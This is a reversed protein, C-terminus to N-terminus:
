LTLRRRNVYYGAVVDNVAIEDRNSLTSGSILPPDQSKFSGVLSGKEIVTLEQTTVNFLVLTSGMRFQKDTPEDKEPKDSKIEDRSDSKRLFNFLSAVM